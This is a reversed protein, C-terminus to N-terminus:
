KICPSPTPVLITGSCATCRVILGLYGLWVSFLM